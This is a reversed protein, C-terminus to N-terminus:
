AGILIPVLIKIVAIILAKWDIHLAARKGHDNGCAHLGELVAAVEAPTMERSPAAASPQPNVPLLLNEGYGQLGLLAGAAERKNPIGHGTAVSKVAAIAVVLDGPDISTPLSTM